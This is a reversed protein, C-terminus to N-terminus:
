RSTEGKARFRQLRALGEDVNLRGSAIQRLLDDRTAPPSAETPPAEELLAIIEELKARVTPYSVGLSREVESLNGRSRVFIRLFTQQDATLREFVNASWNGRVITDCQPCHLERVALGHGCTPCNSPSIYV